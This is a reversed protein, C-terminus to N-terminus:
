VMSSGNEKLRDVMKSGREEDEVAMEVGDAEFWVSSRGRGQGGAGRRCRDTAGAATKQRRQLRRVM